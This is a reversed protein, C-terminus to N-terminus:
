FCGLTAGIGNSLHDGGLPGGAAWVRGQAAIELGILSPLTPVQINVCFTGNADSNGSAALYLNSQNLVDVYAVCSLGPVQYPIVPGVSWFIFSPANPWVSQVCAQATQGLVLPDLTFTPVPAGCGVRAVRAITRAVLRWDPKRGPMTWRLLSEGEVRSMVLYIWPGDVGLDFVRCIGPHDLRAIARAERRLREANAASRAAPSADVIKIAVERGLRTDRAAHVAGQGGSGLREGIEYDAIREPPALHGHDAGEPATTAEHARLFEEVVVPQDPVSEIYSLLPRARGAVRDGTYALLFELGEVDSTEPGCRRPKSDPDRVMQERIM